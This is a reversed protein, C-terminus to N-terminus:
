APFAMSAIVFGAAVLTVFGAKLNRLKEQIPHEKAAEILKRRIRLYYPFAYPWVVLTAVAWYLASKNSGRRYESIDGIKHTSADLYVFIACLAIILLILIGFMVGVM